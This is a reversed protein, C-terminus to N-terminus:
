CSRVPRRPGAVPTMCPAVFQSAAPPLIPCLESLNQGIQDRLCRPGAFPEPRSTVATYSTRPRAAHHCAQLRASKQTTSKSKTAPGDDVVTKAPPAAPAAVVAAARLRVVETDQVQASQLLATGLQTRADELTARQDELVRADNSGALQATEAVRLLVDYLADVNRYVSFAPSMKAPDALATNILRSAYGLRRAAHFRVDSATAQRVDGPAKWKPVNVSTLM